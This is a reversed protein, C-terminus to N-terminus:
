TKTATLTSHVRNVDNNESQEGEKLKMAREVLPAIDESMGVCTETAADVAEDCALTTSAINCSGVSISVLCAGFSASQESVSRKSKESLQQAIASHSLLPLLLALTQLRMKKQLDSLM